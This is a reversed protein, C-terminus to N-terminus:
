RRARRVLEALAVRAHTEGFALRAQVAADLEEVTAGRPFRSPRTREEKDESRERESITNFM